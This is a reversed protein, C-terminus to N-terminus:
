FSLKQTLVQLVSVISIIAKHQFTIVSIYDNYRYGAIYNVFQSLPNRNNDILCRAHGPKPHHLNSDRPFIYHTIHLDIKTYEWTTTNYEFERKERLNDHIVLAIIFIVNIFRKFM